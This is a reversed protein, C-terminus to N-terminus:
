CSPGYKDRGGAYKKDGYIKAYGMRLNTLKIISLCCFQTEKTDEIGYFFELITEGYKGKFSKSKMFKFLGNGNVDIYGEKKQFYKGRHAKARGDIFNELYDYEFSIVTEGLQDIYGFKGEKKAKARGDIFDGIEDFEFPIILNGDLSEVGWKEFKEGKRM